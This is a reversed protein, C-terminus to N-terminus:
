SSTRCHHPRFVGSVCTVTVFNQNKDLQSVGTATASIGSVQFGAPITIKDAKSHPEDKGAAYSATARSMEPPPTELDTVGYQVGFRAASDADLEHPTTTFPPVAMLTNATENPDTQKDLYFAGPEPIMFDLMTRKGYNWVQAEYVKNQWQYIGSIHGTGPNTLEHVDSTTTQTLIKAVTRQLVRKSIKEVAKTTVDKSYRSAAKTSETLSRDNSFSANASISVTPGYSASVTVGAKVSEDEKISKSSENSIEFREATTTDTETSEITEVETTVETSQSTLTGVERKKTEGKLVNEIYAVDGGEYGILQQKVVLLDSVGLITVRGAPRLLDFFRNLLPPPTLAGRAFSAAWSTQVPKSYQVRLGGVYQVKAIPSSHASYEDDLDRANQALLQKIDHVVHDVPKASPDISNAKLLSRTNDQLPVDPSLAFPIKSPMTWAPVKRPQAPLASFSDLLTKSMSVLPSAIVAASTMTDSGPARTESGSATPMGRSAAARAGLDNEFSTLTLKTLHNALQLHQQALNFRTMDVAPPEPDFPEPDIYQRFRPPLKVLNKIGATINIRDKCLRAINENSSVIAAQAAAEAESRARASSLVSKLEAFTPVLLPRLDYRQLDDQNLPFSTDNVTKRLVEITRLRRTLKALNGTAQEIGLLRLAVISDKLREELGNYSTVALALDDQRLSSKLESILTPHDISHAEAVHEPQGADELGPSTGPTAFGANNVASAKAAELEDLRDGATDLNITQEDSTSLPVFKDSAIFVGSAEELSKRPDSPNASVGAGLSIQFTTNQVLRIPSYRLDPTVPPRIVCLKFLDESM